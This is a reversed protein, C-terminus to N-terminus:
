LQTKHNEEEKREFTDLAILIEATVMAAIVSPRKDSISSGGIPITLKDISNPPINQKNLWNKFTAKKTKSGVMGVYALTDKQLAEKAILFDLAHDHTVIIVASGAPATAIVSEPIATLIPTATRSITQLEVARTEVVNVQLPLLAFSESLAKGVHGAGFIYVTPQNRVATVINKRLSVELELTLKKLELTIRGGCCQGIEPGLPIDMIADCDGARLMQRARDIAMYEFQGGGITEWIADSAVLMKAGVERPSSGQVETIEVLVCHKNTQLFSDLSQLRM